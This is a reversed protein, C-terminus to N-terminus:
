REAVDITRTGNRKATRLSALVIRHAQEAIDGIRLADEPEMMELDDLLRLMFKIRRIHTNLAHVCLEFEMRDSATVAQELSMGLDIGLHLVQDRVDEPMHLARMAHRVLALALAYCQDQMPTPM